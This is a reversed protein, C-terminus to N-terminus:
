SIDLSGHILFIFSLGRWPFFNTHPLMLLMQRKDKDIFYIVESVGSQIILKTCENCPFMTVYLRQGMASAHNTNLIANVEAHCVYSYETELPEDRKSKMAAADGACIHCYQVIFRLGPFSTMRADKRSDM